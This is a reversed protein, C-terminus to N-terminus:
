LSLGLDSEMPTGDELLWQGVENKFQLNFEKLQEEDMQDPPIPIQKLRQITDRMCQIACQMVYPYSEEYPTGGINSPDTPRGKVCVSIVLELKEIISDIDSSTFTIDSM